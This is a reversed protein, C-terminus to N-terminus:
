FYVQRFFSKPAHRMNECFYKNVIDYNLHGDKDQDLENFVNDLESKSNDLNLRKKTYFKKLPNFKKCTIILSVLLNKNVIFEKIDKRYDEFDISQFYEWYFNNPEEDTKKFEQILAVFSKFEKLGFFTSESLIEYM